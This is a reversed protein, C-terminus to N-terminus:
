LQKIIISVGAIIYEYLGTFEDFDGFAEFGILYNYGTNDIDIYKIKIVDNKNLQIIQKNLSIANTTVIIPNQISGNVELFLANRQSDPSNAYIEYYGDKDVLVEDVDYTLGSRGGEFFTIYQGNSYTFSIQNELTQTILYIFDKPTNLADNLAQTSSNDIADLVAQRNTITNQGFDIM